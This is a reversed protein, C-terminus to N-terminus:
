PRRKGLNQELDDILDERHELEISIWVLGCWIRRGLCKELVTHTPSCPRSHQAGNLRDDTKTWVFATSLRTPVVVVGDNMRGRDEGVHIEFRM